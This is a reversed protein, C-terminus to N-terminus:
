LVERDLCELVDITHVDTALVEGEPTVVRLQVDAKYRPDFLFTEEQTLDVSIKKEGIVCEDKKEVIITRNQRFTIKARTVVKAELPIEFEFTPTTGLRM